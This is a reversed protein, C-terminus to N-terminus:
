EERRWHIADVVAGDFRSIADGVKDALSRLGSEVDAGIGPLNTMFDGIRALEDANRGIQDAVSNLASAIERAARLQTWVQLAIPDGAEAARTVQDGVVGDGDPCGPDAM